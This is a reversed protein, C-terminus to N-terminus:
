MLSRTRSFNCRNAARGGRLSRLRARADLHSFTKNALASSLALPNCARFDLKMRICKTISNQKIFDNGSVVEIRTASCHRKILRKGHSTFWPLTTAGSEVESVNSVAADIRDSFRAISTETETENENEISINLASQSGRSLCLSIFSHLSPLFLPKSTSLFLIFLLHTPVSSFVVVVAVVVVVVVAICVFQFDHAM